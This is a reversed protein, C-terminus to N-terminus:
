ILNLWRALGTLFSDFEANFVKLICTNRNYESFEKEYNFSLVRLYNLLHKWFTSGGWLHFGIVAVLCHIFFKCIVLANFSFYLTLNEAHCPDNLFLHVVFKFLWFVVADFQQFIQLRFRVLLHIFSSILSLVVNLLNMVELDSFHAIEFLAIFFVSWWTFLKISLKFSHNSNFAAM